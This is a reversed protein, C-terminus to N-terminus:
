SLEGQAIQKSETNLEIKAQIIKDVKPGYGTTGNLALGEDVIVFPSELLMEPSVRGVQNINVLPIGASQFAAIVLESCFWRNKSPFDHRIVIGVIGLYNYPKGIQEYAFKYVAQAQEDTCDVHAIIDRTPNGTGWPRIKVGMERAGLLGNPVVFDVHSITSWTFFRIISSVPGWSTSFCLQIQQM